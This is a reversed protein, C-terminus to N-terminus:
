VEILSSYVKGEGVDVGYKWKHSGTENLFCCEWMFQYPPPFSLSFLYFHHSLSSKLSSAIAQTFMIVASGKPEPTGGNKLFKTSFSNM